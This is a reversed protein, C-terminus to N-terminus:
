FRFAARAIVSLTSLRGVPVGGLTTTDPRSGTWIPANVALALRFFAIHFQLGGTVSLVDFAEANKLSVMGNLEALINIFIRPLVVTGLGYKLVHTSAHVPDDRVGIGALYELHAVVAIWGGVDLGMVLYPALTLYQHLVKPAQFLDARASHDAARTGTPLYGTLGGTVGLALGQLSWAGGSRLDVTMNGFDADTAGDGVRVTFPFSLGIEVYRTNLSAFPEMLLNVADDARAAIRAAQVAQRREEPTSKSVYSAVTDLVNPDTVGAERLKQVVQDKTLSAAAEMQDWTADPVKALADFGQQVAEECNPVGAACAKETAQQELEKKVTGLAAAMPSVGIDLGVRFRRTEVAPKLSRGTLMEAGDFPKHKALVGAPCALLVVLVWWRRM